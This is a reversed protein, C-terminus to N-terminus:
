GEGEPAEEEQSEAEQPDTQAPTDPEPQVPTINGQLTAPSQTMEMPLNGQDFGPIPVAIPQIQGDRIEIEGEITGPEPTAEADPQQILAQRDQLLPQVVRQPVYYIWDQLLEEEALKEKLRTAVADQGDEGAAETQEGADADEPSSSGADEPLDAQVSLQLAYDGADNQEGITVEYTFGEATTITATTPEAFIEELNVAERAAVDSFAPSTLLRKLSQMKTNDIEEGEAGDTFTFDAQADERSVSWDAGEEDAPRDVSVTLIDSVKFFRDDLWSVPDADFRNLTDMVVYVTDPEESLAVFRGNPFGRGEPAGPVTELHEQGLFVQALPENDAGYFAVHTAPAVANEGPEQLQLRELTAETARVTQAIKLNWL